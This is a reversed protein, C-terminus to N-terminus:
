LVSQEGCIVPWLCEATWGWFGQKPTQNHWCGGPPYQKQMYCLWSAFQPFNKSAELPLAMRTCDKHWRCLTDGGGAPNTRIPINCGADWECLYYIVETRKSAISRHWDKSEQKTYGCECLPGVLIKDCSPCNM